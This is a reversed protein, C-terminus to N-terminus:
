RTRLGPENRARQHEYRISWLYGLSAAMISRVFQQDDNPARIGVGNAKTALRRLDAFCKSNKEDWDRHAAANRLEALAAIFEWFPEQDPRSDLARVLRLKEAFWMKSLNLARPNPVVEEIFDVILDEIFGHTVIVSSRVPDSLASNLAKLLGEMVERPPVPYDDPVKDM